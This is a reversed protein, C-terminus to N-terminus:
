NSTKIGLDRATQSWVDNAIIDAFEAASSGEPVFGLDTMKKVFIEDAMMVKVAEELKAVIAPDTGAPALLGLWDVTEFGKVGAEDITPLDPVTPARQLSTVAVARVANSDMGAKLSSLSGIIMHLRGGMLDTIAPGIGQYPVHRLEVGAMRAFLETELHNSTGPGSSGYLVQGPNAKAHAIIEAVTKAPFDPTVVMVHPITVLRTIPTFDKIPDYGTDNRIAPNVTHASSAMLLTYGDNRAEAVARTGLASGAGGRNEVVVTQGLEKQLAEAVMRGLIDTSGGPAYPVVLTVPHDPYTQAFVPNGAALAIIAAAALRFITKV